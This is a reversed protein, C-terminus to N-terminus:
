SVPRAENKWNKEGMKLQGDASSKLKEGNLVCDLELALREDIYRFFGYLKPM